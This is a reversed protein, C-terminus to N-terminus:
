TVAFASDNAIAPYTSKIRDRAQKTGTGVDM